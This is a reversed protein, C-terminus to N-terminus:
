GLALADLCGAVSSSQMTQVFPGLAPSSQVTQFLRVALNHYLPRILRGVKAPHLTPPSLIVAMLSELSITVMELNTPESLMPEALVRIAFVPAYQSVNVLLQRILLQSM